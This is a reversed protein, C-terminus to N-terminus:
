INQYQILVLDVNFHEGEPQCKIVEEVYANEPLFLTVARELELAHDVLASVRAHNRRLVLWVTSAVALLALVVGARVPLYSQGIQKFTRVEIPYTNGSSVGKIAGRWALLGGLTVIFSPIRAYAALMGQLAGIAVGVLIGALLSPILGLHLSTQVLVAVMGSLGVVSGVSLDIQGTIIVMVMGVALVGTVATQRILNSFNRPELFIGDTVLTFVIWVAVLALVMSYSRVAHPSLAFRRREMKPKVPPRNASLNASGSM